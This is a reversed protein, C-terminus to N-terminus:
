NISPFVGRTCISYTMGNPAASTLDPLRYLFGLGNPDDGYTIGIIDFLVPELTRSFYQGNAVAGQAFPGATLIIEGITCLRGTAGGQAKNTNTGFRADPTAPGAAGQVGQPGQPGAAGQAGTAGQAGAPGPDGQPGQAGAPGAPGQPGTAGTLGQPGVPGVAGVTLDLSALLTHGLSFSRVVLAYSGADAVPLAAVVDTTSYSSVTLHVGALTVVPTTTVGFGTGHIFVQGGSVDAREITAANVAASLSLLLGFLRISPM